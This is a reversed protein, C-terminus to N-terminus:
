GCACFRCRRSQEGDSLDKDEGEDEEDELEDELDQIPTRSIPRPIRQEYDRTCCVSYELSM